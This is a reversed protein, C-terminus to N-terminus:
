LTQHLLQPQTCPERGNEDQTFPLKFYMKSITEAKYQWTATRVKNRRAEIRHPNDEILAKRICRAFEQPQSAIYVLGAYRDLEKFPRSVIPKGLALYEKLKIPNCAEIWDNQRWPMVAVDFCKGYHPIQSYPKYGLLLVNKKGAIRSCDISAKGILVFSVNPMLDVVQEFFPMDFTHNDIGGFFGVIPRAIDLIDEPVFDQKSVGAFLDFDVGHDLYYAKKCEPGEIEYLLSSVFVTLDANAKLTRDYHEIVNKDVNPFEEWRDTRQWILGRKKLRLATDCAGPCAVWVLPNVMKLKRMVYKVQQRLMWENIRALWPIHHVPLTFPSYVWFGEGSPKLGKTISKLKRTVKAFFKSGKGLRPKQIVVSNVYLVTREKAFNRMMQMDIHAQNHYWWDGGGFCLISESNVSSEEEPQDFQLAKWGMLAKMAGTAYTSVTQLDSTRSRPFRMAHILWYPIRLILFLATLFCASLYALISRHKRFFLLISARIQLAMQPKMQSSSAGGFHIIQADPPFLIKWGAQKVRYCYDTEEGYVFYDEDLMGVVETMERRILMFCGTVVDLERIDDRNWWTMRERGFFRNQPFLKYLYTASLFMNLVSPYMFGTRQLTKDPNMVYCGVVGAEPHADAFTIVTDLAKNLVITDSNLMLIYRGGAAAFGQNNAAAFGRNSTNIFLKVDPFECAVMEASQDASANDVVIIEYSIHHTNETISRLCHRLMDKTNYNVIIISIDISKM